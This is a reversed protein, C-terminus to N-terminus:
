VICKKSRKSPHVSQFECFVVPYGASEGIVVAQRSKRNLVLM